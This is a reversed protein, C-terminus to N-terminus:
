LIRFFTDPRCVHKLFTKLFLRRKGTEVCEWWWDHWVFFYWNNNHKVKNM